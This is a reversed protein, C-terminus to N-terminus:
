LKLFKELSILNLAYERNKNLFEYNLDNPVSTKEQKGFKIVGLGWDTDITFM